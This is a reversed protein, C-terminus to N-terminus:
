TGAVKRNNASWHVKCYDHNSLGSYFTVSQSM